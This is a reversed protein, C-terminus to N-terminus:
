QKKKLERVRLCILTFLIGLIFALTGVIAYGMNATRLIISGYQVEPLSGAESSISPMVRIVFGILFLVVDSLVADLAIKKKASHRTRIDGSRKMIENFCEDSNKM